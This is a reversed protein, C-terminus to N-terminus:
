PCAMNVRGPQALKAAAYTAMDIQGDHNTIGAPISFRAYLGCFPTLQINLTRAANRVALQKLM